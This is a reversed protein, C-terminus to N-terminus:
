YSDYQEEMIKGLKKVALVTQTVNKKEKMFDFLIDRLRDSFDKSFPRSLISTPFKARSYLDRASEANENAGLASQMVNKSITLNTGSRYAPFLKAKELFRESNSFNGKEDKYAFWRLFRRIDVAQSESSGQRRSMSVMHTNLMGWNQGWGALLKFASADSDDNSASKDFVRTLDTVGFLYDGSFIRSTSTGEALGLSDHPVAGSKYVQLWDSLVARAVKGSLNLKEGQKYRSRNMVETIFSRSISRRSWAPILTPKDYSEAHELALRYM